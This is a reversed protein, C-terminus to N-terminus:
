PRSRSPQAIVARAAFALGAAVFVFGAPIWMILGGLQQDELVTLGWGDVQGAYAPYWPRPSFTLLAGLIGTHIATTLLYPLARGYRVPSHSGALATWFLLASLLFGLHQVSHVADDALSAQFLVPMHWGWLVLAHVSWAVLPRTLVMWPGRVARMGLLRAIRLRAAPPFAWIFAAFPRGAVLLPAAALMLLEHQLMHMSFLSKGLADLPSLLAAALVMLGGCFCVTRRTWLHAAHHAARGIRQAGAGYLWSALLMGGAIWADVGFFLHLLVAAGLAALAFVAARTGGHYTASRAAHLWFLLAAGAAISADVAPVFMSLMGASSSVGHAAASPMLAPLLAPICYRFLPLRM